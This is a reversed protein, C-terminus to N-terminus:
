ESLTLDKLLQPLRFSRSWTKALPSYLFFGEAVAIMPEGFGTALSGGTWRSARRTYTTCVGDRYLYVRSQPEAPLGLETELRGAQPVLSGLLSLGAPIPLALIGQPVDGVCTVTLDHAQNNKL